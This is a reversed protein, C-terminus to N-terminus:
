RPAPPAWRATALTRFRANPAARYGSLGERTIAINDEHWLSVYPVDDAVIAQIEAYLARREDRVSTVRAQDILADLEANSYRGRNGGASRDDATPISRSHFVWEYMNPDIVSPWQLSALEFNGSKVDGFFTGWEYAQLEVCVGIEGLQSAIVEAISRYFRNASTKYVLHMRCGDDGRPLGAEDLLAEAAVPDYPWTRVDSSYAWHHPPLMGTSLTAAGRYKGRIIEERDIGMAIARRVEVRDLPAVELNFMLYSYKFSPSTEVHLRDDREVVPLLLPPVVNQALDVRGGLLALLLSNGDPIVSFVVRAIEPAGGHYAPHAELMLSADRRQEVFRFPGAGIPTRGGFTGRESLLHSPVIGMDLNVVFSADPEPLEFVVTHEDIASVGVEAWAGAFPSGVEPAGLQAFTYVVDASTLPTGDHFRVDDRLTIEYRTPSTQTIAAAVDFQPEGDPTDITVLGAFVLRAIKVDYDSTTFRPDFTRPAADLVVVLAHEPWPAQRAGGFVAVLALVLATAGVILSTNWRMVGHTDCVARNRSDTGSM